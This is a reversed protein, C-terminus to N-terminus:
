PWRAMGQGEFVEVESLCLATTRPVQLRVYRQPDGEVRIRWPFAQTFMVDRRAIVTFNTNDNSVSLELPLQEEQFGDARNYVRISGINRPRGLDITAWPGDQHKTHLGYESELVGNVLADGWPKGDEHSSQAVPMLFALNRPGFALMIGHHFYYLLAIAAGGALLGMARPTLRLAARREPDVLASGLRMFPREVVRHLVEAAVMAIVFLAIARRWPYLVDQPIFARYEPWAQGLDDEFRGAMVHLLYLAYSRSGIYELVRGLGPIALVYGQDLSAFGVLVASLFWLAIFGQHMMVYAPAAAPLCAILVIVAPLIFLRMLWRPMIPSSKVQSAVLALAVGAMLSDFRLHSSFKEYFDLAVGDPHPLTRCLISLSGVGVCAALRRSTTRFTVFLVPLILYFHEEVALSWYVGMRYDAHYAHAYNYVGGYFAVVEAFWAKPTGFNQPFVTILFRDILLAALAAPMIRFFRRAYFTKLAQRARAFADLFSTEGELPPLLRVLSLTVVFGSIVFFLDVGSWSQGAIDPLLKQFTDWHVVMVMLIAVARLREIERLKM